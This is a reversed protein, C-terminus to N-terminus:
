ESKAAENSRDLLTPLTHPTRYPRGPDRAQSARKPTTRTIAAANGAPAAMAARGRQRACHFNDPSTGHFGFIAQKYDGVTFITRLRDGHAGAGAFFDDILADIIQWQAANTDQAEDVLVHDFRRDLKYRIWDAM